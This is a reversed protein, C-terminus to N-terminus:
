ILARSYLLEIPSFHRVIYYTLLCTVYCTLQKMFPTSCLIAQESSLLVVDLSCLLKIPSVTQIFVIGTSHLHHICCTSLYLLRTQQFCRLSLYMWATLVFAWLRVETVELLEAVVVSAIVLLYGVITATRTRDFLNSLFFGLVVQAHM